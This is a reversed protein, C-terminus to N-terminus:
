LDPSRNNPGRNRTVRGGRAVDRGVGRNEHEEVELVRCFDRGVRARAIKCFDNRGVVGVQLELGAATGSNSSQPSVFAM